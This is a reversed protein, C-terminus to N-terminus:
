VKHGLVWRQTWGSQVITELFNQTLKIELTNAKKAKDAFLFLYLKVTSALNTTISITNYDKVFYYVM